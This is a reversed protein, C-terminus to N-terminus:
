LLCSEISDQFLQGEKGYLSVAEMWLLQMQPLLYDTPNPRVMEFEM